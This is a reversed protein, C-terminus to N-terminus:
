PLPCAAYVLTDDRRDAVVPSIGHMGKLQNYVLPRAEEQLHCAGVIDEQLNSPESLFVKQFTLRPSPKNLLFVLNQPMIAKM